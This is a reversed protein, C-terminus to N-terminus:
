QVTSWWCSTMPLRDIRALESLGSHGQFAPRSPCCKGTSRRTITIMERSPGFEAHYCIEPPVHVTLL